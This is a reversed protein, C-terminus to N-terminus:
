KYHKRGYHAILTSNLTTRYDCMTCAFPKEGTHIRIHRQMDRKMKMIKSCYPCAFQAPGIVIPDNQFFIYRFEFTLFNKSGIDFYCPIELFLIKIEVQM